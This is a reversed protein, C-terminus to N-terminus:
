APLTPDVYHRLESARLHNELQREHEMLNRVVPRAIQKLLSRIPERLARHGMVFRSSIVRQAVRELKPNGSDMATSKILVGQRQDFLEDIVSHVTALLEDDTMNRTRPQGDGSWISAMFGRADEGPAETYAKGIDGTHTDSAGTLYKNQALALNRTIANLPQTRGANLEMVDFYEAADFVKWLTVKGQKLEDREWWTPHNYQIYIGESRCYEALDPLTRIRMRITAYRDPDLYYLNTHISFGIDPDLLTHEVAPIVLRRDSEPLERILNEYGAMTNHDTLTFFDMRREPDSSGLAAEFLARPQYRRLDPVDHSWCSHVHLDARKPSKKM